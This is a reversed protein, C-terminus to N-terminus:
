CVRLVLVEEHASSCSAREEQESEMVKEQRYDVVRERSFPADMLGVCIAVVTAMGARDLREGVEVFEGVSSCEYLRAMMHVTDLPSREEMECGWDLVSIKPLYGDANDTGAVDMTLTMMMTTVDYVVTGKLMRRRDDVGVLVAVVLMWEEMRQGM